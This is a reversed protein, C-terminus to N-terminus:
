TAAGYGLWRLIGSHYPLCWSFESRKCICLRNWFLAPSRPSLYGRLLLLVLSTLTQRLFFMLSKFLWAAERFKAEYNSDRVLADLSGDYGQLSTRSSDFDIVIGNELRIYGASYSHDDMSVPIDPMTVLVEAIRVGIVDERRLERM